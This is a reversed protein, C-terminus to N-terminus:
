MKEEHNVENNPTTNDIPAGMYTNEESDNCKKLIVTSLVKVVKNPNRQQEKLYITQSNDVQTQENVLM